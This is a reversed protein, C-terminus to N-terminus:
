TQEQYYVMNLKLREDHPNLSLAEAGYKRARDFEGLRYSAIAALDHPLYGWAFDESFYDLSKETIALAAIAYKQCLEWDSIQYGHQALEVKAERRNPDLAISDLLHQKANEPECKALYRYSRSKEAVWHTSPLSLYRRFEDAAEVLKRSFFLERALYHSSRPDAPNEKASLQLLALYQGRSKTPDPRHHIEISYWAQTEITRDAVLVEHVPYKWRYGSRAHIKDGGFQLDPAGNEKWSWTYKYRPRSIKEALAKELELRWGPQLTEDLDLAICYDIDSPIVALAANRADDFRWPNITINVVTIGLQLAKELTGDDSGTDALLIYDAEKASEHWREIFKQENKAISYVAVRM